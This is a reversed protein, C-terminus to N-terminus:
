ETPQEIPRISIQTQDQKNSAKNVKHQEEAQERTLDPNNRMLLEVETTLNHLLNFEDEKIQEDASKPFEPEVFDSIFQADWSIPNSINHYNWIIREIEFIKKENKRYLPIQSQRSELKGINSIMLAFGSSPQASMTFNQPSINYSTLVNIIRDIIAKQKATIDAQLDLVQVSGGGDKTPNVLCEGPGLKLNGTVSEPDDTNFVLQKFSQYKESSNLWILLMAVNITLDFVDNGTSFDLLRDVPYVKNYLVFPLIPKGTQDLYPIDEESVITEYDGQIAIEYVVGGKLVGGETGDELLGLKSIDEAAWIVASTYQQVTRDVPGETSANYKFTPTKSQYDQDVVLGHYYKYAIVKKWDNPDTFVEINNFLYVDYDLKGNRWCVKLVTQNTLNTYHNVAKLAENKETDEQSLEYNDDPKDVQIDNEGTKDIGTTIAKRQPNEKYVLSLENVIRKLINQERTILFKYKQATTESVQDKLEEEIIYTWNDRYIDILNQVAQKIELKHATRLRQHTNSPM